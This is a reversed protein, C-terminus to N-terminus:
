RPSLLVALAYRAEALYPRASMREAIRIAEELHAQAERHRGLLLALRGLRLDVPGLCVIM